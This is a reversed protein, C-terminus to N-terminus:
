VYDIVALPDGKIRGKMDYDNFFAFVVFEDDSVFVRWSDAGAHAPVRVYDGVEVWAGEPWPNKTERNRYAIPGLELVKAVRVMSADFDRSEGPLHIGGATKMKPKRMQVLVMNGLPAILADVVPFAEEMTQSARAQRSSRVTALESM